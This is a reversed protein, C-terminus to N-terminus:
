SNAYYARLISKRCSSVKILKSTTLKNVLTGMSSETCAIWGLIVSKFISYGNGYWVDASQRFQAQTKGIERKIGSEKFLDFPSSDTESSDSTTAFRKM